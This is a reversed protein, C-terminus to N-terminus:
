KFLNAFYRRSPFSISFSLTHLIWQSKNFSQTYKKDWKRMREGSQNADLVVRPLMKVLIKTTKRRDGYFGYGANLCFGERHLRSADGQWPLPGGQWPPLQGQQGSPGVGGAYLGSGQGFTLHLETTIPYLKNKSIKSQCCCFMHKTYRSEWKWENMPHQRYWSM